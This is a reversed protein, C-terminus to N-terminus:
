ITLAATILFHDSPWLQNPFGSQKGERNFAVNGTGPFVSSAILNIGNKAIIVDEQAKKVVTDELTPGAGWLLTRIRKLDFDGRSPISPNQKLWMDMEKKYDQEYEGCVRSAYKCVDGWQRQEGESAKSSMDGCKGSQLLLKCTHLEGPLNAFGQEEATCKRSVTCTGEFAQYLKRYKFASKITTCTADEAPIISYGEGLVSKALSGKQNADMLVIDPHYELISPYADVAEAFNPTAHAAMVTISKKPDAVLDFKCATIGGMQFSNKKNCEWPQDKSLKVKEQNWCLHQPDNTGPPPDKWTICSDNQGYTSAAVDDNDSEQVAIFDVGEDYAVDLVTRLWGNNKKRLTEPTVAPFSALSPSCKYKALANLTAVLFHNSTANSSTAAEHVTKFAMGLDEQEVDITARAADAAGFALAVVLARM